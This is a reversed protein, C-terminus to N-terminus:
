FRFTVGTSLELDVVWRPRAYFVDGTLPGEVDIQSFKSVHFIMDMRLALAQSIQGSFGGGLDISLWDQNDIKINSEPVGITDAFVSGDEFPIIVSAAVQERPSYHVWGLGTSLHPVIPGKVPLLFLLDGGLRLIPNVSNRLEQVGFPPNNELPELDLFLLKHVNETSSRSFSAEIVFFRSILKSARIGILFSAPRPLDELFGTNPLPKIDGYFLVGAYPTLWYGDTGPYYDHRKLEQAEGGWAGPISGSIFLFLLLIAATKM